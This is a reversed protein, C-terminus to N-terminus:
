FIPRPNPNTACQSRCCEPQLLAPHRSVLPPLFGDSPLQRIIHHSQFARAVTVNTWTTSSALHAARPLATYSLVSLLTASFAQKEAATLSPRTKSNLRGARGPSPPNQRFIAPAMLVSVSITASRPSSKAKGMGPQRGTLLKGLANPLSAWSLQEPPWDESVSRHHQARSQQPRGSCM